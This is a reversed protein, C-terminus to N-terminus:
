RVRLDDIRAELAPRPAEEAYHGLALDCAGSFPPKPLAPGIPSGDLKVNVTDAIIEVQISHWRRPRLPLQVTAPQPEEDVKTGVTLGSGGVVLFLSHTFAGGGPCWLEFFTAYAPDIWVATDLWFALEIAQPVQELPAVLLRKDRTGDTTRAPSRARLVRGRGSGDDFLDLQGPGAMDPSWTPGVIPAGVPENREFRDCLLPWGECFSAGSDDGSGGDGSGGGGDGSGGGGDVGSDGSPDPSPRDDGAEGFAACSAVAFLVFPLARPVEVGRTDCV